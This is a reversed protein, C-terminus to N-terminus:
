VREQYTEWRRQEAQDTDSDSSPPEKWEIPPAAVIWAVSRGRRHPDCFDPHQEVLPRVRARRAPDYPGPLALIIGRFSSPQQMIPGAGRQLADESGDHPNGSPHDDRRTRPSSM